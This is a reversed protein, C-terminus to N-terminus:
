VTIISYKVYVRQSKAHDIYPGYIWYYHDYILFLFTTSEQNQSQEIAHNCFINTLRHTIKSALNELCTRYSFKSNLAM